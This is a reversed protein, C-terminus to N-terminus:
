GEDEEIEKARARCVGAAARLTIPKASDKIGGFGTMMEDFIAAAEELAAARQQRAFIFLEDYDEPNSAEIEEDSCCDPGDCYRLRLREIVAEHIKENTNSM